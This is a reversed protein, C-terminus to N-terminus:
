QFSKMYLYSGQQMDNLIDHLMISLKTSKHKRHPIFDIQSLQKLIYKEVVWNGISMNLSKMM